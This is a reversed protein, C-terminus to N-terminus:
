LANKMARSGKVRRKATVTGAHSIQEGHGSLMVGRTIKCAAKRSPLKPQFKLTPKM